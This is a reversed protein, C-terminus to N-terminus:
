FRYIGSLMFIHVNANLDGHFGGRSANNGAGLLDIAADKATIYTYGANLSIHDTADYSAGVSFWTRDTDPLRANRFETPVPTQDFGLGARLTLDPTARYEAGVAFYWSDDWNQDTINSPTNDNFNITLDKFSSWQTWQAEGLLRIRDNLQHSVGFNLMAPTSISTNGGGNTLVGATNIGAMLGNATLSSPDRLRFEADGDIDHKIKSRYGVGLTTGPLPEYVAGLTFGFGFDHGSVKSLADYEPNGILATAGAVVPLSVASELEAKAYQAQLGAAVAFQPTVRYAVTPAANITTLHSATAHYRGAWDDGYDTTLGFPANVSLGVTVRDNIPASVYTSPVLGIEDSTSASGGAVPLAYVPKGAASVGVQPGFGASVNSIEVNPLLIAGGAETRMGDYLAITAPNFFMSSIDTGGASVGAFSTGQSGASHSKLAFGAAHAQGSAAAMLAATAASLALRTKFSM